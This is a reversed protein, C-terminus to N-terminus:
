KEGRAAKIAARLREEHGRTLIYKKESVELHKLLALLEECAALLAPAAIALRVQIQAQEMVAPDHRECYWRENHQVVATNHCRAQWAGAHAM